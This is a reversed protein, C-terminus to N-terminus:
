PVSTLVRSARKGEALCTRRSREPCRGHSCSLAAKACTTSSKCPEIGQGPRLFARAQGPGLQRGIVSAPEAVVFTRM